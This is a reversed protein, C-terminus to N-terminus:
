AIKRLYIILDAEKKMALKKRLRYRATNVSGPTINLTEAIEKSSKNQRLLSCLTLDHPTLNPHAQLLRQLFFDESDAAGVTERAISSNEKRALFFHVKQNLRLHTARNRYAAIVSPVMIFALGVGAQFFLILNVYARSDADQIVSDQASSIIEALQDASPATSASRYFYLTICICVIAVLLLPRFSHM